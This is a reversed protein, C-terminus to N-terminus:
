TTRQPNMGRGAAHDDDRLEQGTGKRYGHKFADVPWPSEVQRLEDLSRRLDAAPQDTLHTKLLAEIDTLIREIDDRTNAHEVRERMEEVVAKYFPTGPEFQSAIAGLREAINSVPHITSMHIIIVLGTGFLTGFITVCYQHFAAAPPSGHGAWAYPSHLFSLAAM